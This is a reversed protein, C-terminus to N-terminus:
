SLDIERIIQNNQGCSKLAELAELELGLYQKSEAWVYEIYGHKEVRNAILLKGNSYVKFQLKTKDM